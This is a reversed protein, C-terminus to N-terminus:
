STLASELSRGPEILLRAAKGNPQPRYIQAVLGVIETKLIEVGLALAEAEVGDFAEDIGTVDPDTLNM